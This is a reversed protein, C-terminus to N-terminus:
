PTHIHITEGSGKNSQYQYFTISNNPQNYTLTDNVIEYLYSIYINNTFILNNNKTSVYKLTDGYTTSLPYLLLVTQDNLVIISRNLSINYTTDNYGIRGFDYETGIWTHNGAMKYVNKLSDKKCGYTFIFIWLMISRKMDKTM